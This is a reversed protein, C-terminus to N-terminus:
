KEIKNSVVLIISNGNYNLIVKRNGYMEKFMVNNDVSNEEWNYNLCESLNFSWENFKNRGAGNAKFELLIRDGESRIETNQFINTEIINQLDDHTIDIERDRLFFFNTNAHSLSFQTIDCVNANESIERSSESVYYLDLNHWGADSEEGSIYLYWDGTETIKQEHFVYSSGDEPFTRQYKGSPSVITLLPFFQASMKIKIYDGKQLKVQYADFRGFDEEYPDDVTLEGKLEMKHTDYQIYQANGTSLLTTYLVIFFSIRIVKM